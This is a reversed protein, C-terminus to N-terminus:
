QTRQRNTQIYKTDEPLHVGAKNAVMSQMGPNEAWALNDGQM